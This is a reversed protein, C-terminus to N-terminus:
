HTLRTERLNLGNYTIYMHGMSNSLQGSTQLYKVCACHFTVSHVLDSCFIASSRTKIKIETNYNYIYIYLIYIYIIYIHIQFLFDNNNQKYQSETMM